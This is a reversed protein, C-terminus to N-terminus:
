PEPRKVVVVALVEFLDLDLKYVRTGTADSFLQSMRSVLKGFSQHLRHFCAKRITHLLTTERHVVGVDRGRVIM